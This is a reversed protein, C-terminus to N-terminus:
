PLRQWPTTNGHISGLHACGAQALVTSAPGAWGLGTRCQLGEGWAWGGAVSRAAPMVGTRLKLWAEAKKCVEVVEKGAPPSGHELDVELRGLFASFGDWHAWISSTDALLNQGRWGRQGLPQLCSGALLWTAVWGWEGTGMGTGCGPLRPDPVPAPENGMIAADASNVAKSWTILLLPRGRLYPKEDAESGKGSSTQPMIM